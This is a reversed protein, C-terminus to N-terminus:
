GPKDAANIGGDKTIGPGGVITLGNNNLTTDGTTISTLGKLEKALKVTLKDTGDTIVGINNDTLKDADREGGVVNVTEGLKRKVGAGSDGAFSLPNSAQDNAAKIADHM